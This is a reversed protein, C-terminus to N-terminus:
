PEQEALSLVENSKEEIECLVKDELTQVDRM